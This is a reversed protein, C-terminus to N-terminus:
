PQMRLPNRDPLSPVPKREPLPPTQDQAGAAINATTQTGKLCSTDIFVQIEQYWWQNGHRYGAVGVGIENSRSRLVREHGPSKKWFRMAANMAADSTARAPRTWSMHWNEGRFKCFKVGGARLRQVPNRGDAGHGGRATRALYNAYAQAARSATENESLPALDKSQRYANTQDIIAAKASAPVEFQQANAAGAVGLVFLSAALATVRPLLM